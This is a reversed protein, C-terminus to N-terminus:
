EGPTPRPDERGPAGVPRSGPDAAHRAAAPDEAEDPLYARFWALAAGTAHELLGPETFDHSAGRVIHVRHAGHLSEAAARSIRVLHEDDSGAILLVPARVAPLRESALDPRGSRCVVASVRDPRAAAAGLAGAAATGTGFLGVRLRATREATALEDVVGTVRRTLLPVDFRPAIASEGGRDRTEEERTLLDVLLTGLGANVMAEAVSRERRSRRPSDDSEVFVVVGRARPPLALDGPLEVDGVRVEMPVVEM